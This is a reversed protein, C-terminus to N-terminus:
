NGFGPLHLVSVGIFQLISVSFIIFLLGMVASTVLEKAEGAKKPDGQSTSLMFGGALIMLLAIAGSLGLGIRVLQTIISESSAGICGVATYIGPVRTQDAGLEAEGACRQESVVFFSNPDGTMCKCCAERQESQRLAREAANAGDPVAIQRCANFPVMSEEGAEGDGGQALACQNTTECCMSQEIVPQTLDGSDIRSWYERGGCLVPRNALAQACTVNGPTSVFECAAGNLIVPKLDPLRVVPPQQSTDCFGPAANTCLNPVPNTTCQDGYSLCDYRGSVEVQYTTQQFCVPYREFFSGDQNQGRVPGSRISIDYIGEPITSNLQGLPSASLDANGNSDINLAIRYTYLGPLGDPFDTSVPIDIRELFLWIRQGRFIEPAGIIRIGSPQSLNQGPPVMVSLSPMSNPPCDLNPIPSPGPTPSAFLVAQAAVQPASTLWGSALVVFFLLVLVAARKM